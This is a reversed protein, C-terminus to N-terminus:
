VGTAIGFKTTSGSYALVLAGDTDVLLSGGSRNDAPNTEWAQLSGFLPIPKALLNRFDPAIPAAAYYTVRGAGGSTFNSIFGVWWLEGNWYIVTGSNWEIRTANGLWEAGSGLPRADLDWVRGDTSRWLCFRAYDGGALLGHAYWSGGLRWPRFYGLGGAPPYGASDYSPYDAVVGVRTWGTVGNASTALMTVEGASTGGLAATVQHYYMFWLQETPNWVVAQTETQNGLTTDQYIQGRDTWPGLRNTATMLGIRATAGEHDTSYYIRYTEGFTGVAGTEKVVNVIWPWQITAFTSGQDGQTFIPNGPYKTLAPVTPGLNRRISSFPAVQNLTVGPADLIGM